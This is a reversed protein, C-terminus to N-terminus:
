AAPPEPDGGDDRHGDHWARWESLHERARLRDLVIAATGAILAIPFAVSLCIDGLRNAREIEDPSMGAPDGYVCFFAVLIALGALVFLPAILLDRIKRKRQPASM